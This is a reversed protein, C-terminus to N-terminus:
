TEPTIQLTGPTSAIASIHQFTSIATGHDLELTQGPNLIHGLGSAGQTPTAGSGLTYRVNAVECTIMVFRSSKGSVTIVGAALNTASNTTVVRTTNGPAGDIVAVIRGRGGSM